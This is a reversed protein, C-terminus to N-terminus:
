MKKFKNIIEDKSNSQLIQNAKAIGNELDKPDMKSLMDMLKSIDANNM